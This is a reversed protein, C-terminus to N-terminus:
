VCQSCKYCGYTSGSRAGAHACACFMDVCKRCAPVLSRARPRRNWRSKGTCWLRSKKTDSRDTGYKRLCATCARRREETLAHIGVSRKQSIESFRKGEWASRLHKRVQSETSPDGRLIHRRQTDQRPSPTDQKWGVSRLYAKDYQAPEEDLGLHPWKVVIILALAKKPVSRRKKPAGGRLRLQRNFERRKNLLRAGLVMEDSLIQRRARKM